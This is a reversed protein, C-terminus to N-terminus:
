PYTFTSNTISTANYYVGDVCALYATSNSVKIPNCYTTNMFNDALTTYCGYTYYGEPLTGCLTENRYTLAEETTVFAICATKNQATQSNCTDMLMTFNLTINKASSNLSPVPTTIYSCSYNLTANQIFRCVSNEDYQAGYALYCLDRPTFQSGGFSFGMLTLYGTLNTEIKSYNLVRSDILISSAIGSNPQSYVHSCYTYNDLRIADNFWISSSCITSNTYNSLVNCMSANYDMLALSQLCQSKGPGSIKYCYGFNNTQNAIYSICQSQTAQDSIKQCLSENLKSEAIALYCSSSDYYTINACLSSNDTALALSYLCNERSQAIATHMCRQLPTGRPEIAYLIVAIILIWLVAFLMLKIKEDKEANLLQPKKRDM